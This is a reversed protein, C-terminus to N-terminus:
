FVIKSETWFYVFLLAAASLLAIVVAAAYFGKASGDARREAPRQAFAHVINILLLFGAEAAICLRFPWGLLATLLAFVFAFSSLVVPM